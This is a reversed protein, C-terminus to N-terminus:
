GNPSEEKKETTSKKNKADILLRRIRMYEAIMGDGHVTVDFNSGYTGLLDQFGWLQALMYKAVQFLRGNKPHGIRMEVVDGLHENEPDVFDYAHHDGTNTDLNSDFGFFHLNRYGFLSAISIARLGCTCGGGILPKKDHKMGAKEFQEGYWEPASGASHWRTVPYGELAAFVSPHCCSAVLYNCGVQPRSIYNASAPDPDLILNYTPVVGNEVLWDHVSGCAIITRFGRLEALTYRISPGGGVLAIPENKKPKQYEPLNEIEPLDLKLNEVIQAEVTALDTAMYTELGQIPNLRSEEDEM